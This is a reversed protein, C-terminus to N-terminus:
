HINSITVRHKGTYTLPIHEMIQFDIKIDNSTHHKIIKEIEILPLVFQHDHPVIRIILNNLSTQEVQFKKIEQYNLMLHPFFEGPLSSGDLLKIMDLSRGVINKLLSLGRGCPCKENTAIGLDGIEYRIFPFSFNHLDTVVIKGSEGEKSNSGDEKVIEVYLNEMSIHLGNHHNCESAILNFERSGYTDFAKCRFVKQIYSRQYDHLKEAACIIASPIYNLGGKYEIFKAFDFLPNTYGVITKPKSKNLNEFCLMMASEDFSFCNYYKQRHILNSIATKYKKFPTQKSLPIGWIYAQKTGPMLSAWSYGRRSIAVRWSYSEKSYGFHLPRGTSGGTSKLWLSDRHPLTIIDNFNNRIEDKTLIPIKKFEDFSMNHINFGYNNFINKYYPSHKNAYSCIKNLSDLQDNKLDDNSKWQTNIISSYITETSRGKIKDIIPFIISGYLKQYLDMANNGIALGNNIIITLAHVLIL